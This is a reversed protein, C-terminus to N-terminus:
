AATSAGSVSEANGFRGFPPYSSDAVAEAEAVRGFLAPLEAVSRDLRSLELNAEYVDANADDRARQYRALETTLDADTRGLGCELAQALLEADRFADSIGRAVLPDKHHGVDGVLAWGPGHAQRIFNPLSLMGPMRGERSVGAASLLDGIVPTQRVARLYQRAPDSRYDQAAEAPAQVWAVALGDNTPVLGAAPRETLYLVACQPTIGRWYSWYSISATGDNRYVRAGAQRAVLSNRGDAGVVIRAFVDQERGTVDLLWAGVVRDGAFLLGRLTTRTRVDARARRSAELLAQDLAFRRPTLPAPANEPVRQETVSAGILLRRRTIPPGATAIVEELLGWSMLRAVGSPKIMHGNIIDSPFEAKDVLLVSLGARALLM